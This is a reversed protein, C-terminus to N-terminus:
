NNRAWVSGIWRVLEGVSYMWGWRYADEDEKSPNRPVPAPEGPRWLDIPGDPPSPAVVPRPQGDPAGTPVSDFSEENGDRALRTPQGASYWRAEHLEWPDTCWGQPTWESAMPHEPTPSSDVGPPPSKRASHEQRMNELLLAVQDATEPWWQGLAWPTLVRGEFPVIAVLHLKGTRTWMEDRVFSAVEHWQLCKTGFLGRSRIGEDDATVKSRLIRLGSVMLAGGALVFGLVLLPSRTGGWGTLVVIAMLGVVLQLVGLASAISSNLYTVSPNAHHNAGM